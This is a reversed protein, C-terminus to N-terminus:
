IEWTSEHVPELIDREIRSASWVLPASRLGEIRSGPWAVLWSCGSELGVRSSPAPSFRLRSIYALCLRSIPSIYALLAPARLLVLVLRSGRGRVRVRVRVRVRAGLKM